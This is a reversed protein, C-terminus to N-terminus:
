EFINIGKLWLRDEGQVKMYYWWEVGWLYIEDVGIQKAFVMSAEMDEAPFMKYLEDISNDIDGIDEPIWPEMQLESVIVKDVFPEALIKQLTYIMPSHPFIFSGISKNWVERYLSFGLVDVNWTRLFWLSQEGSTTSQIDHSPDLLRVFRVTQEFRDPDPAPCEGFPFFPENEVQWRELASHDRYREVVTEIMLFFSEEFAVEDSEQAWSPIFCEPWRPVKLGVVLTVDIGEQAARDMLYDVEQFDYEGRVAEIEDWYVPIRLAELGELDALIAEYTGEVDLGLYETYHTSFSAGVKPDREHTLSGFVVGFLLVALVFVATIAVLRKLQKRRAM